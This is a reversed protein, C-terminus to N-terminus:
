LHARVLTHVSFQDRFDGAGVVERHLQRALDDRLALAANNDPSRHTTQWIRPGNKQTCCWSMVIM